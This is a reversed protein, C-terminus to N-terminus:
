YPVGIRILIMESISFFFSDLPNFVFYVSGALLLITVAYCLIRYNKNESTVSAFWGAAACLLAIVFFHLATSLAICYILFDRVYSDIGPEFTLLDFIGRMAPFLFGLLAAGYKDKTILGYLAGGFLVVSISCLLIILVFIESHIFYLPIYLVLFLFVLGAFFYKKNEKLYQINMSIVLFSNLNDFQTIFCSRKRFVVRTTLSKEFTIYSNHLEAFYYYLLTSILLIHSFHRFTCQNYETDDM